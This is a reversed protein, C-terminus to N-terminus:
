NALAAKGGLLIRPRGACLMLDFIEKEWGDM